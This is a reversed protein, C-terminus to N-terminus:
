KTHEARHAPLEPFGLEQMLREECRFHERTLEHLRLLRVWLAEESAGDTLAQDLENMLSFLSQHQHDVVPHGTEFQESWEVLSM